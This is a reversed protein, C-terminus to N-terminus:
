RYMTAERELANSIQSEDIELHLLLVGRLLARMKQSLLFLENNSLPIKKSEGQQRYSSFHEWYKTPGRVM